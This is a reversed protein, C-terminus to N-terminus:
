IKQGVRPKRKFLYLKFIIKGLRESKGCVSSYTSFALFQLLAENGVKWGVNPTTFSQVVSQRIELAMLHVLSKERTPIYGQGSRKCDLTTRHKHWSVVGEISVSSLGILIQQMNYVRLCLQNSVVQNKFDTLFIFIFGSHYLTLAISQLRSPQLNSRQEPSLINKAIHLNPCM